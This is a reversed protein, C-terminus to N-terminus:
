GLVPLSGTARESVGDVKIWGGIRCFLLHARHCDNVSLVDSANIKTTMGYWYSRSKNFRRVILKGTKTFGEVRVNQTGHRGYAIQVIDNLKIDM